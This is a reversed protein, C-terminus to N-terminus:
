ASRETPTTSGDAALYHWGRGALWAPVRAPDDTSLVSWGRGRALGPNVTVMQHERRCLHLLNDPSWQGGQSRNKRHHMDTALEHGCAECIGGSRAWVVARADREASTVRPRSQPPHTRLTRTWGARALGAGRALPTKRTLPGGRKM